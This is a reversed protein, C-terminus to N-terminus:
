ALGGCCCCQYTQQGTRGGDSGPVYAEVTFGQFVEAFAAPIGQASFLDTEHWLVGGQREIRDLPNTVLDHLTESEFPDSLSLGM